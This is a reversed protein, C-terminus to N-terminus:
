FFLNRKGHDLETLKKETELKLSGEEMKKLEKMILELGTRRIEMDGHDLMYEKFSLISNARCFHKINGPKAHRMFVEGTRGVRYCATCFSPSFEANSISKIIELTSRKDSTVFQASSEECAEDSRKVSSYAGPSTKSSSSLQSIGLHFLEDRLRPSERTSLIIGASPVALRLISVILKLENDTVKRPPDLSVVSGEAQGIRPVSITHPGVNFEKELSMSHELLALVEFRYDYLGFLAGIGVDDIGGEMARHMANLRWPYDRKPGSPHVSSYTEKNYTEQFLQYTGIGFTKLRRFDKTSMPAVNVNVRRINSPGSSVSYVTDVARELRDMDFNKPDEAAVLLLRKHGDRILAETENKIEESNLTRFDNGTNKGFGCYTCDNVCRSSLYLPAFIVLRNGYISEKVCKAAVFIKEHERADSRNLLIAAEETTLGKLSLAKRLIGDFDSVLADKSKSLIKNIKAEDLFSRNM